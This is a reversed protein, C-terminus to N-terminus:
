HVPREQNELIMGLGIFFVVRIVMLVNRVMTTNRAHGWRTSSKRIMM